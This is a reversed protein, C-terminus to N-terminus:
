GRKIFYLRLLSSFFSLVGEKISLKSKGKSKDREVFIIPIENIKFYQQTFYTFEILFSPHSKEKLSASISNLIDRKFVRFTHSSDTVTINLLKSSIFNFFISGLKRFLGKNIIKSEQLYRSGIVMDCNNNKLMEIMRYLYSPSVSLDVDMGILYKGLSNKYGYLIAAGLGDRKGHQLLRIKNYKKSLNIIENATGDPSNDDVFVIEYNTSYNDFKNSIENVFTFINTKENFVPVIFSYEIQKTM